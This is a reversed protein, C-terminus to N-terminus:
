GAVPEPRFTGFAWVNGEADRAAYDRSGYDQDTPEMVIEAGAAAARRHHEDIDDVVVYVCVPRLDFVSGDAQASSLMVIGGGWALQAHAITGDSNEHRAHETFGFAKTLFRIAEPADDYRLTPFVTQSADTTM